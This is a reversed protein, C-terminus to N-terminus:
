RLRKDAGMAVMALYGSLAYAVLLRRDWPEANPAIWGRENYLDQPPIVVALHFLFNLGLM